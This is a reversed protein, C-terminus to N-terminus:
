LLSPLSILFNDWFSPYCVSVSYLFCYVVYSAVVVCLKWLMQSLFLFRLGLTHTLALGCLLSMYHSFFSNMMDSLADSYMVSFVNSLPENIIETVVWEAKTNGYNLDYLETQCVSLFNTVKILYNSDSYDELCKTRLHLRGWQSLNGIFSKWIM